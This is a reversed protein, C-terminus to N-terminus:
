PITLAPRFKAYPSFDPFDTFDSFDTFVFIFFELQFKHSGKQMSALIKIFFYDKRVKRIKGVKPSINSVLSFTLQQLGTFM